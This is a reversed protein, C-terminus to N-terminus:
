MRVHMLEAPTQWSARRVIILGFYRCLKWLRISEEVDLKRDRKVDYHLM